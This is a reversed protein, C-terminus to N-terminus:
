LSSFPNLLAIGCQEFDRTHRTALTLRHAQAAAAIVMDAQERVVGNRAFHERLQGARLAIDTTISFVHPWAKVIHEFPQKVRPVPQSALGSAMEEATVVSLAFEPETAFLAKIGADPDRKLYESIINTGILIM